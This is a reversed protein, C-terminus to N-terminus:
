YCFVRSASFCPARVTGFRAPTVKVEETLDVVGVTPAAGKKKGKHEGEKKGFKNVLHQRHEATRSDFGVVYGLIPTPRKMDFSRRSLDRLKFFAVACAEQFRLYASHAGAADARPNNPDQVVIKIPRDNSTQPGGARPRMVGQDLASVYAQESNFLLGYTEFFSMLM